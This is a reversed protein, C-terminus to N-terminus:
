VFEVSETRYALGLDSMILAVIACCTHRMAAETAAASMGLPIIDQPFAICIRAYDQNDTNIADIISDVLDKAGRLSALHHEINQAKMYNSVHKVAWVRSDIAYPPYGVLSITVHIQPDGHQPKVLSRATYNDM